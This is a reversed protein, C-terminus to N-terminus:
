SKMLMCSHFNSTGQTETYKCKNCGPGNDKPVSSMHYAIRQIIQSWLNQVLLEDLLSLLHFYKRIQLGTVDDLKSHHSQESSKFTTKYELKRTM